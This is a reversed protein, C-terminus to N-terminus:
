AAWIAAMAGAIVKRLHPLPVREAPGDDLGKWWLTFFLTRNQVDTLLKEM